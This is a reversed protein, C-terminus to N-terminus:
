GRLLDEAADDLLEWSRRRREILNVAPRLAQRLPQHPGIVPNAGPRTLPTRQHRESTLDTGYTAIKEALALVRICYTFISEGESAQPGYGRHGRKVM